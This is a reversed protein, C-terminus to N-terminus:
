NEEKKDATKKNSGDFEKRIFTGNLGRGREKNRAYKIPHASYENKKKKRKTTKEELTAELQNAVNKQNLAFSELICDLNNKPFYYKFNKGVDLNMFEDNDFIMSNQIPEEAIKGNNTVSSYIKKILNLAVSQEGLDFDNRLTKKISGRQQISMIGSNGANSERKNGGVNKVLNLPSLLKNQDISARTLNSNIIIQPMNGFGGINGLNNMNSKFPNYEKSSEESYTESSEDENVRGGSLISSNLYLNSHYYLDFANDDSYKIAREITLAFTNKFKIKKRNYVRRRIQICSDLYIEIVKKSM